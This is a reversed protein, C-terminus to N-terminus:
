MVQSVVLEVGGRRNFTMSILVDGDLMALYTLLGDDIMSEFPRITRTSLATQIVGGGMDEPPTWDAHPTEAIMTDIMEWVEADIIDQAAHHSFLPLACIVFVLAAATTLRKM